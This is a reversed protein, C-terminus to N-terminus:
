AEFDRFWDDILQHWLAPREATAREHCVEAATDLVVIACGPMVDQRQRLTPACAIIWVHAMRHPQYLRTMVADRAACAFPLWDAGDDPHLGDAGLALRLADLDVVLDHPGRHEAVYVNKGSCPPGAVLTVARAPLVNM